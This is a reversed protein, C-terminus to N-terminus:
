FRIVIPVYETIILLEFLFTPERRAPEKDNSILYTTFYKLNM